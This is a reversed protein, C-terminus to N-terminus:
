ADPKSAEGPLFLLVLVGGGILTAAVPFRHFIGIDVLNILVLFVVTAARAFSLLPFKDPMPAPIALGNMYPSRYGPSVILVAAVACILPAGWPEAFINNM